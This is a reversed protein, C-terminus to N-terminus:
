GGDELVKGELLAQWDTDIDDSEGSPFFMNSESKPPQRAAFQRSAAVAFALGYLSAVDKEDDIQEIRWLNGKWKRQAGENGRTFLRHREIRLRGAQCEDALLGCALDVERASLTRCARKHSACVAALDHVYGGVPSSVDVVVEVINGQSRLAHDVADILQGWDTRQDILACNGAEDAAVGVWYAAGPPAHIALAVGEGFEVSQRTECTLWDNPHIPPDEVVQLWQNLGARKWAFETSAAHEQRITEIDVTHGLSPMCRWWTEEDGTVADDPAAWEAYFLGQEGTEAAARGRTVKGRFYHSSADGATSIALLLADSFTRMTPRLGDELVETMAWAEDLIVLPVSQGHGSKNSTGAITRMEIGALDNRLVLYGLRQITRLQYKDAFGSTVMLQWPFGKWFALVDALNQAAFLSPQNRLLMRELVLLMTLVSKGQQRPLTITAERFVPRGTAANYQTLRELVLRQWWVLEIGLEGALAEFSALRNPLGFDPSIFAPACDVASTVRKGDGM